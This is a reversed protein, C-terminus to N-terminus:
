NWLIHIHLLNLFSQESPINIVFCIGDAKLPHWWAAGGGLTFLPGLGQDM